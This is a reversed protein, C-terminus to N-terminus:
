SISVPRQVGTEVTYTDPNVWLVYQRDTGTDLLQFSQNQYRRISVSIPKGPETYVMSVNWNDDLGYMTKATKLAVARPDKRTNEITATANLLSVRQSPTLEGAPSVAGNVDSVETLGISTRGLQGQLFTEILTTMESRVADASQGAPLNALFQLNLKVTVEADLRHVRDLRSNKISDISEEVTEGTAPQGEGTPDSSSVPDWGGVETLYSEALVLASEFNQLPLVGILGNAVSIKWGSLNSM